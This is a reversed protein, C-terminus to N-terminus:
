AAAGSRSYAVPRHRIRGSSRTLMIQVPAARNMGGLTLAIKVLFRVEVYKCSGTAEVNSLFGAEKRSSKRKSIKPWPRRGTATGKELAHDRALCRCRAVPM